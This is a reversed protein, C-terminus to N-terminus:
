GIQRRTTQSSKLLLRLTNGWSFIYKLRARCQSSTKSMKFSVISDSIFMFLFNWTNTFPSFEIPAFIHLINLCRVPIDVMVGDIDLTRSEKSADVAILKCISKCRISSYWRLHRGSYYRNQTM